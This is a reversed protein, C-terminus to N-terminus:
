SGLAALCARLAEERCPPDVVADGFADRGTPRRGRFCEVHRGGDGGGDGGGAVYGLSRLAAQAEEVVEAPMTGKPVGLADIRDLETVLDGRMERVVEPREATLDKQEYPDTGQDYLRETCSRFDLVYKYEDGTLSVFCGRRVTRSMPGPETLPGAAEAAALPLPESAGFGEADLGALRLLTRGIGTLSVPREIRESPLHGPWHLLLPVRVNTDDVRNTHGLYGHELFSEGHDAFVAIITEDRLELQELTELLRAMWEDTFRIESRYVGRLYEAEAPAVPDEVWKLCQVDENEPQKGRRFAQDWPAQPRYNYHPDWLHVWIFFPEDQWREVRHQVKSILEPSSIRHHGYGEFDYVEFGRDFGYERRLTVAPVFAATRYGAEEFREALTGVSPALARDHEEVGHALSPLGTMVSMMSPTTWPAASIARDFVLSSAALQDLTPSVTEGQESRSMEDWRLSDVSVVLVSPREACGALFVLASLVLLVFLRKM